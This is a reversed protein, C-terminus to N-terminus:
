VSAKDLGIGAGRFFLSPRIGTNARGALALREVLNAMLAHVRFAWVLLFSLHVM